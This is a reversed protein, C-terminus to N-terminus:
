SHCLISRIQQHHSYKLLPQIRHVVSRYFINKQGFFPFILSMMRQREKALLPDINISFPDTPLHADVHLEDKHSFPDVPDGVLWIMVMLTACEM